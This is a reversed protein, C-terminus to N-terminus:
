RDLTGPPPVRRILVEVPGNVRAHMLALLIETAGSIHECICLIYEKKAGLDDILYLIVAYM